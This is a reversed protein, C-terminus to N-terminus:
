TARRFRPQYIVRIQVPSIEVVRYAALGLAAREKAEKRFELLTFNSTDQVSPTWEGRVQFQLQYKM